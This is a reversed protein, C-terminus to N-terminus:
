DEAWWNNAIKETIEYESTIQQAYLDGMERSHGIFTGFADVDTNVNSTRIHKEAIHRFAHPNTRLVREEGFLEKTAKAVNYVVLSRLNGSGLPLGFSKAEKKGRTFFLCKLNDMNSKAIEWGAIRNELARLEKELDTIREPLAKKVWGGLIGQEKADALKKHLEDLSDPKYGWFVLWNELSAVAEMAMPICTNIWYDLDQTLIEPIKYHRRKGTKTYNKHNETVVLYYPNGQEDTKRFLTEGLSLQRIEEQRVPCYVLFKVLIAAQWAFLVTCGSRTCTHYYKDQQADYKATMPACYYRLRQAVLRAEEHSMLKHSWKKELNKVKDKDYARRVKNQLDKLNMVEPIDSWNDRRVKDYAFWKAIAVSTGLMKLAMANSNKRTNVSWFIYDKLLNIDTLLKITLNKPSRKKVYVYWGMFWYICSKEFEITSAKVQNLEPKGCFQDEEESQYRRELEKGKKLYIEKESPPLQGLQLVPLELGLTSPIEEDDEPLLLCLELEGAWQRFIEFARIELALLQPVEETALIYASKSETLKPLNILERRPSVTYRLPTSIPSQWWVQNKLWDLFRTLASRYNRKAGESLNGAEVALNALREFIELAKKLEYVEFKECYNAFEKTKMQEVTPDIEPLVYRKLAIKLYKFTNPDSQM